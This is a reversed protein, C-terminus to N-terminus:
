LLGIECWMPLNRSPFSITINVNESLNNTQLDDCVEIDLKKFNEFTSLRRFTDLTTNAEWVSKCKKELQTAGGLNMDVVCWGSFAHHFTYKIIFILKNVTTSSMYTNDRQNDVDYVHHYPYSDDWGKVDRMMEESLECVAINLHRFDWDDWQKGVSNMLNIFEQAFELGKANHMTNKGLTHDSLSALKWFDADSSPKGSHMLNIM